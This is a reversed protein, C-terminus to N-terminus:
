VRGEKVTAETQSAGKTVIGPVERVEKKVMAAGQFWYIFPTCLGVEMTAATGDDLHDFLKLIPRMSNGSAAIIVNKGLYVEPLITWRLLPLVRYGVDEISEGNPPRTTYSRRWATVQEQGYKLTTEAKNLGQLDGYHRENLASDEVVPIARQGLADLIITLTEAARQLRGTYGQDFHIDRIVEATKCADSRGRDTLPVDTWGTFRNELNWQSQGHRILVLVGM